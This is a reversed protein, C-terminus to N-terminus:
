PFVPRLMIQVLLRFFPFCFPNEFYSNNSPLFFKENPSISPWISAKRLIISVHSSDWFWQILFVKTLVNRIFNPPHFDPFYQTSSTYIM